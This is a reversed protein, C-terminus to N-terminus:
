ATKNTPPRKWVLNPTWSLNLMNHECFDEKTPTRSEAHWAYYSEDSQMQRAYFLATRYETMYGAEKARCAPTHKYNSVDKIDPDAGANLLLTIIETNGGQAAYHLPTRGLTDAKNIDTGHKLLWKIQAIDERDVAKHLGTWGTLQNVQHIDIDISPHDPATDTVKRAPPNDGYFFAFTDFITM